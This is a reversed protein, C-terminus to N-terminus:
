SGEAFYYLPISVLIFLSFYALQEMSGGLAVFFSFCIALVAITISKKSLSFVKKKYMMLQAVPTYLYVIVISLVNLAIITNYQKVLDSSVTLMLVLSILLSSIVLGYAPAGYKNIKLFPKFFLNERAAAMPVLGQLLIWGNMCGLCSIVAGSVVVTKGWDGFIIQAADAVPSTSQQLQENPIVGMVVVTTAIYVLATISVGLITAIPITRRPDKVSEAPVTGSEVGVFGWLTLLLGEKILSFNSAEPTSVNLSQTIYELHFFRWGFFIVMFLPILKLTTALTSVFSSDRVGFLNIFTFFWVFGIAAFFAHIPQTLIPFFVSLYGVTAIVIAINGGWSFIWYSLATQFGLPNGLGERVYAYPGGERPLLQSMRSFLFGLVLAGLATIVWSVLTISGLRALSTPLLFIASGIMNGVIMGTLPIVGIKKEM